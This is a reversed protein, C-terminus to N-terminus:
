GSKTSAIDAMVEDMMASAASLDMARGAEQAWEFGQGGLHQRASILMEESAQRDPEYLAIGTRELM